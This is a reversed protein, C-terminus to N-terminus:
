VKKDEHFGWAEIIQQPTRKIKSLFFKERSPLSFDVQKQEVMENLLADRIKNKLEMQEKRKIENEIVSQNKHNSTKEQKPPDM